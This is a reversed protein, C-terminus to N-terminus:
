KNNNNKIKQLGDTGEKIIKYVENAIDCDSLQKCSLLMIHEENYRDFDSIKM